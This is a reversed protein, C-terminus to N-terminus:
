VFSFALRPEVFLSSVVPAIAHTLLASMDRRYGNRVCTASVRRLCIRKPHSRHLLACVFPAALLIKKNFRRGCRALTPRQHEYREILQVILTDLLRDDDYRLARDARAEMVFRQRFVSEPRVPLD